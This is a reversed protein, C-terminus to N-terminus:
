RSNGHFVESIHVHATGAAYYAAWYYPHRYRPDRAVTQRAATLASPVSLGRTLGGYFSDMLSVASSSDIQWRTAVVEPVGLSALTDVIDGMGHDWGEENKGTSCASFVALRAARPPHSRLMGSDLWPRDSAAGTPALLLRTGGDHSSAHGAFHLLSATGLRAAVEPQTAHVGVFLNAGKDFRAVAKAEDVAEPLMESQGAGISAGVVLPNAATGPHAVRQTELLLSPVEQLNFALGLPGAATAVSPWPVNGLLPDAELLLTGPGDSSQPLNSSLLLGLRHAAQDVSSQSTAPSSVVRGLVSAAALLDDRRLPAQSWEVGQPGARYVLLRDRLVIQGRIWTTAGHTASDALARELRPRLCALGNGPCAPVPLGLIRLRYREWLALIDIGPRGQAIWLGALAAYLGRDQRAYAINAVGAGRAQVEESLIVKVLNAEAKEPVGLALDLEARETAYDRLIFPNDEGAIQDQAQDLAHGAERLDGRDLYLAATLVEGEAQHGRAEKRSSDTRSDRALLLMQERAEGLAGARMQSRILAQREYDVLTRNPSLEFLGLAEKNLLMDLRTRPTFEEMMALGSVITAGRVPPLDAAYFRRVADNAIRWAGESDGSESAFSASENRARLQLNIYHHSEALQLAEEALPNRASATGPGVDCTVALYMAYTRIWAFGNRHSLLKRGVALCPAFTFSRQLAFEREVMARDEGAANGLRHFLGASELAVQAASSYEGRADADIAQGLTHAAKSFESSPSPLDSPLFETLWSDQHNRELSAALARLLGRAALCRQEGPSGRSCEPPQPYAAELIRPLSTNALEEDLGALLAPDAALAAMAQPTALHQEIRSQHTKLRNLKQELADLRRRGEALWQADREFRLYRNWTEVANMVQGRDEMAIAENFLIVPDGPALEDARRLNDLATARDNESNAALGRQFYSTADDLLLSPTVPGNAILRDLIDISSDFKGELTDARAELQLWRPDDPASEM